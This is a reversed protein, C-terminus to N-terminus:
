PNKHGKEQKAVIQDNIKDYTTQTIINKEVLDDKRNYPRESVIKEATSPDIGSLATLESATATNINLLSPSQDVPPQTIWWVEVSTVAVTVLVILIIIAM